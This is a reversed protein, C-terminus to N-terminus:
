PLPPQSGRALPWEETVLPFLLRPTPRIGLLTFPMPTFLSGELTVGGNVRWTGPRRDGSASVLGPRDAKVRLYPGLLADIGVADYLGISAEPGLLMRLDGDGSVEATGQGVPKGDAHADGKWGSDGTYGTGIRMTGGTTQEVDVKLSGDVRVQLVLKLKLSVVVPVTGVMVVPYAALMALPIRPAIRPARVPGKLRWGARYPGSVKLSATADSPDATGRGDYSFSVEPTMEFFGGIQTERELWPKGGLMPVHADFDLRLPRHAGASGKATGGGALGRVVDLGKLLPEVTWASPAVPVTGGASRSGLVDALSAPATTLETTGGTGAGVGTVKFLAGEPSTETPASAVVDGKRLSAAPGRTGPRVVAKRSSADYSVLTVRAAPDGGSAGGSPRTVTATGDKGSGGSTVPLRGPRETGGSAASSAPASSGDRSSSRGPEGSREGAPGPASAEARSAAGAPEPATDACGTVFLAATCVLSCLGTGKVRKM